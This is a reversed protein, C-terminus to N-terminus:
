AAPASVRRRDPMARSKLQSRRDGVTIIATATVNEIKEHRHRGDGRRVVLGEVKRLSQGDKEVAASVSM